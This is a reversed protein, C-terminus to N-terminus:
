RDREGQVEYTPDWEMEHTIAQAHDRIWSEYSMDNRFGLDAPDAMQVAMDLVEDRAVEPHWRFAALMRLTARIWHVMRRRLVRNDKTRKM